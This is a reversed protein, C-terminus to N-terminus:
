KVRKKGGKKNERKKREKKQKPSLVEDALSTVTLLTTAATSQFQLRLQLVRSAAVWRSVLLTDFKALDSTPSEAFWQWIPTFDVPFWVGPRAEVNGLRLPSIPEGPGNEASKWLETMAIRLDQQSIWGPVVLTQVIFNPVVWLDGLLLDPLSPLIDPWDSRSYLRSLLRCVLDAFGRYLCLSSIDCGIGVRTRTLTNSHRGAVGGRVALSKLIGGMRGASLAAIVFESSSSLDAPLVCLQERMIHELRTAVAELWQLALVNVPAPTKTVADLVFSWFIQQSLVQACVDRTMGVSQLPLHKLALFNSGDFAGGNQFIALAILVHALGAPQRADLPQQDAGVM